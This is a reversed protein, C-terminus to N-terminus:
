CLGWKWTMYQQSILRSARYKMYPVNIYVYKLFYVILYSLSPDRKILSNIMHNLIESRYGTSQKCRPMTALPWCCLLYTTLLKQNTYGFVGGWNCAESKQICCDEYEEPMGLSLFRFSNFWVFNPLSNTTSTSDSVWNQPGTLLALCAYCNHAVILFVKISLRVPHTVCDVTKGTSLLM